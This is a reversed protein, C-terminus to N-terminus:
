FGYSGSVMRAQDEGISKLVGSVEVNQHRVAILGYWVLLEGGKQKRQDVASRFDQFRGLDFIEFVENNM